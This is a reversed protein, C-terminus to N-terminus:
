ANGFRIVELLDMVDEVTRIIRYSGRWSLSFQKEDDTLKVIGEAHKVEVLVSVGNYGIALDPCGHGVMHLHLVSAGAQRFAEVIIKQNEDVRKQM